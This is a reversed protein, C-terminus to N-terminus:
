FQYTVKKLDELNWTDINTGDEKITLIFDQFKNPDYGKILIEDRLFIQKQNTEGGEEEYQNEM